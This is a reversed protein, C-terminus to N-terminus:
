GVSIGVMIAQVYGNLIPMLYMFMIHKIYSYFGNILVSRRGIARTRLKTLMSFFDRLSYKRILYCVCCFVATETGCVM